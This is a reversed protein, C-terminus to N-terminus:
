QVYPFAKGEMQEFAFRLSPPVPHPRGTLYYCWVMASKGTAFLREHVNVDRIQHEMLFSTRGVRVVRVGVEVTDSRVLPLLYTCVVEKILIGYHSGDPRTQIRPNHPPHSVISEVEQHEERSPWEKLWIELHDFYYSRAEEFYTFYVTNNVHALPDLDRFRIQVPYWCPFTEGMKQQGKKKKESCVILVSPIIIAVFFTSM